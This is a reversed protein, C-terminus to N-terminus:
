SKHGKTQMQYTHFGNALRQQLPDALNITAKSFQIVGEPDLLEAIQALPKISFIWNHINSFNVYALTQRTIGLILTLENIFYPDTIDRYAFAFDTTRIADKVQTFRDPNSWHLVGFRETERYLEKEVAYEIDPNPYGTTVPRHLGHPFYRALREQAQAPSESVAICAGVMKNFGLVAPNVDVFILGDLQLDPLTSFAAGSGVTLGIGGPKKQRKNQITPQIDQYGAENCVLHGLMNGRYALQTNNFQFYPKLETKLPM